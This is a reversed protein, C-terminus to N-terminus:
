FYEKLRIVQPSAPHEKELIEFAKRARERENQGIISLVYNARNNVDWSKLSLAKAFYKEAEKYNKKKLALTGQWKLVIFGEPGVLGKLREMVVSAAKWDRSHMARALEQEMLLIERNKKNKAKVGLTEDHQELLITSKKPELDTKGAKTKIYTKNKTDSSKGFLIEKGRASDVPTMKKVVPLKKGSKAQDKKQSSNKAVSKMTNADVLVLATSSNGATGNEENGVMELIPEPAVMGKVSAIVEHVMTDKNYAQMSLWYLGGWALCLVLSLGFVYKMLRLYLSPGRPGKVKNSTLQSQKRKKQQLSKYIVSM